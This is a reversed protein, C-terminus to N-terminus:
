QIQKINDLEPEIEQSKGVFWVVALVHSLSLCSTSVLRAKEPSSSSLSTVLTNWSFEFRNLPFPHESDLTSKIQSAPLRLLKSILPNSSNCFFSLQFKYPIILSRSRLGVSFVRTVVAM